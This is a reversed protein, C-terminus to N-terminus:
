RGPDAARARPAPTAAEGPADVLTELLRGTRRARQAWLDAVEPATTGARDHRREWTEAESLLWGLTESAGQSLMAKLIYAREGIRLGLGLDRGARSLDARTIVLGSRVPSLLAQIFAEGGNERPDAMPAAERLALPTRDPPGLRASEARLAAELTDAWAQYFPPAVDRLKTLFPLVWSLIHEWLCVKRVRRWAEAEDDTAATAEAEILWAYAGLLTSLHDPDPPPEGELARWFGAIRDRAEGGIRGDEGLYVSAFPYLQFLFLDSHTPEDPVTGLELVHGILRNESCPRELLSGLARFLEM